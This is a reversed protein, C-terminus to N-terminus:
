WSGTSACSLMFPCWRKCRMGAACVCEMDPSPKGFEKMNITNKNINLLEHVMAQYTWQMLLPTVPDERRDLILVTTSTERGFEWLTADAQITRYLQQAMLKACDSKGHYRIFPKAKRSLLCSVLGALSRDFMGQDADSWLTRPRLLRLSHSVFWVVLFCRLQAGELGVCVRLPLSPSLCV